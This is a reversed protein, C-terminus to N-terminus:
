QVGSSTAGDQSAESELAEAFFALAEAAAGADVKEIAFSGSQIVLYDGVAVPENMLMLSITRRQGFCEVDAMQGNIAVIQSPIALCM